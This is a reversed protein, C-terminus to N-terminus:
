EAGIRLSDLKTGNPKRIRVGFEWGGSYDAIKLMLDNLVEQARTRVDEHEVTALV